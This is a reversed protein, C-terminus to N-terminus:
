VYVYIKELCNNNVRRRGILSRWGLKARRVISSKRANSLIKKETSIGVQSEILLGNSSLRPGDMLDRKKKKEFEFSYQYGIIEQIGRLIYSPSKNQCDGGRVPNMWVSIYLVFCSVFMCFQGHQNTSSSVLRFPRGRCFVFRGPPQESRAKGLNRENSHSITSAIVIFELRIEREREREREREDGSSHTM